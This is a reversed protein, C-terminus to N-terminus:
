LVPSHQSFLLFLTEVLVLAPVLGPDVTPDYM